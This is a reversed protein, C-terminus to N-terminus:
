SGLLLPEPSLPSALECQGTSVTCRVVASRSKPGAQDHWEFLVHDDDEPVANRLSEALWTRVVKGTKADLVSAASEGYPSGANPPYGLVFANGPSFSDLRYQCTRWQQRRKSLDTVVSCLGSDTFVPLGAALTGDPSVAVPRAVKTDEAMNADSHWIHLSPTEGDEPRSSIYVTRDVVALVEIDRARAHDLIVDKNDTTRFHVTGGDRGTYRGGTAYAAANGNSSTVLSDIGPLRQVVKGAENLVVLSSSNADPVEMALTTDWLRAVAEVPVSGPVKVASSIGGQVTRGRLYPVQPSRGTPLKSADIVVKTVPLTTPPTRPVSLPAASAGTQSEPGRAAALMGGGAVAVVAVAAVAIVLPRNRNSM